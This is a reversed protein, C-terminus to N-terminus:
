ARSARLDHRAVKRASVQLAALTFAHCGMVLHGPSAAAVKNGTASAGQVPMAAPVALEKAPVM